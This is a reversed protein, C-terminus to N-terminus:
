IDVKKLENKEVEALSEELRKRNAETATLYNTEILSNYESLPMIVVAEDNESNRPILLTECSESVLDLFYKMRNRLSTSTITKM